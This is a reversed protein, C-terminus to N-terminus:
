RIWDEFMPGLSGEESCGVDTGTNVALVVLLDLEPRRDITVPLCPGEPHSTKDVCGCCLVEYESQIHRLTGLCGRLGVGYGYENKTMGPLAEEGTISIPGTM